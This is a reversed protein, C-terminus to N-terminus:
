FHLEAQNTQLRSIIVTALVLDFKHIKNPFHKSSFLALM